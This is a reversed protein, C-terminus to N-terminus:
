FQFYIFTQGTGSYIFMVMIIVYYVCWRVPRYCFPKIDAFQLAHQKERQLWEVALMVFGFLLYTLSLNERLNSEPDGWHSISMIEFGAELLSIGDEGVNRFVEQFSHDKSIRQYM